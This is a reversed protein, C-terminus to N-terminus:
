DYVVRRKQGGRGGGSSSTDACCYDVKATITTAEKRTIAAVIYLAARLCSERRKDCQEWVIEDRSKRRNPDKKFRYDGVDILGAYYVILLDGPSGHAAAFNSVNFLVQLELSKKADFYVTTTAFGFIDEYST